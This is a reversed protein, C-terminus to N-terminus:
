FCMNQSAARSNTAWLTISRVITASELRASSVNGCPVDAGLSIRDGIKFKIVNSGLEVIRGASEHGLVQPLTVRNNGHRFIRIDSGCIGVAEVKMLISDGDVSPREVEQVVMQELQELVAAKM